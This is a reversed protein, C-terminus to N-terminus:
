TEVLQAAGRAQASFEARRFPAPTAAFLAAGIVAIAAFHPWVVDLGAGPFLAAIRNDRIPSGTLNM